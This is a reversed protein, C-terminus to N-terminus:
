SRKKDPLALSVAVAAATLAIIAGLTVQYAFPSPYTKAGRTVSDVALLTAVLQSGIGMYLSRIVGLM